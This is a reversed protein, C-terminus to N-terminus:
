ASKATLDEVCLCQSFMFRQWDDVDDADLQDVPLLRLQTTEENLTFPYLDDLETQYLMGYEYQGEALRILFRGIYHLVDAKQNSEECLERRACAEPSENPLIGGGPIEWNKRKENYILIWHDYFRAAVLVFTLPIESDPTYPTNLDWFHHLETGTHTKCIM